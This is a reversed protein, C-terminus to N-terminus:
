LKLGLNPLLVGVITFRVFGMPVEAARKICKILLKGSQRYTTPLSSHEHMDNSDFFYCYYYGDDDYYYYKQM